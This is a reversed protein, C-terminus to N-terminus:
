RRQLELTIEMLLSDVQAQRELVRQMAQYNAIVQDVMPMLDKAKSQERQIATTGEAINVAGSILDTRLAQLRSVMVEAETWVGLHDNGMREAERLQVFQDGLLTATSRDLTDAFRELFLPRTAQLISDAMTYNKVDLEQLTMAGAEIQTRLSDVTSLQKPDAPRRCSIATASGVFATLAAFLIGRNM